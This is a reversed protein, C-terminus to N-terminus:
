CMYDKLYAPRTRTRKPRSPVVPDTVPTSRRETQAPSSPTPTTETPLAEPSRKQILDAHRKVPQGDLTTAECSIPGTPESIM